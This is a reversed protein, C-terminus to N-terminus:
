DLMNSVKSKMTTPALDAPQTGTLWNVMIPLVGDQNDFCAARIRMGPYFHRSANAFHQSVPTEDPRIPGPRFQLEVELFIQQDRLRHDLENLPM